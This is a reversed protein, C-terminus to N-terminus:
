EALQKKYKAEHLKRNEDAEKQLSLFTWRNMAQGIDLTVKRINGGNAIAPGIYKSAPGASFITLPADIKSAKEIVDDAEDWNTLKLYTVKVGLGFRARIQIADALGTNRHIVLVHGAKKFLEIKMDEDWTNPFFNDVYKNQTRFNDVNYKPMVIGSLSPSFYDAELAARELRQKLLLRPIDVVGFQKLWEENFEYSPEIYDSDDSNCIDMLMKEGDAMRVCSLNKGSSLADGVLMYFTNSSITNLCREIQESSLSQPEWM